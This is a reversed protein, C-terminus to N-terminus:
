EKVYHVYEYKDIVEVGKPIRLFLVHEGWVHHSDDFLEVGNDSTFQSITFEKDFMGIRIDKFGGNMVRLLEGEISVSLPDIEDTLDLNEIITKTHYEIYEIKQDNELKREVLVTLPGYTEEVSIELQEGEFPITSQDNIEVDEINEKRINKRDYAAKVLLEGAKEAENRETESVAPYVSSDGAPILYSFLLALLLIAGYIVLAWKIKLKQLIPIKGINKSISYILVILILLLVLPFFAAVIM